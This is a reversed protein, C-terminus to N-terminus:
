DTRQQRRLHGGDGWDGAGFMDRDDSKRAVTRNTAIADVQEAKLRFNFNGSDDTKGDLAPMTIKGSESGIRSIAIFDRASEPVLHHAATSAYCVDFAEIFTRFQDSRGGLCRHFGTGVRNQDAFAAGHQLGRCGRERNGAGFVAVNLEEAGPQPIIRVYTM